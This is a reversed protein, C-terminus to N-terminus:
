RHIHAIFDDFERRSDGGEGVSRKVAAGLDAARKRIEKGERSDMLMRVSKEIALSEVLEDRCAWDMVVVGIKLVQTVLLANLPQDSHMPWTALPVGMTISEMCSNWGCHSMFGGTSAHALIEVQPAWDRLIKGQGSSEIRDEYGEPLECVRVDGMFIDGKDADRLVWIFKQRSSELGIALAHIQEDTLCTTTGFSVLIVSDPAQNDLWELCKDKHQKNATNCIQVANLPGIAWQRANVKALVDLFPAEIARCTNFIAGSSYKQHEMQRETFERVEPTSTTGDAPIQKLIEDDIEMPTGVLAWVYSSILFTSVPQFCYAEGNPLSAVDQIVSGMLFDHIVVVRRSTASLAYLLRAVPERLLLAADFSPQLHSPFKIAAHPNPLPSEFCPTAFEHFRIMTNSISLPDWGHVRSKAQRTHTITSVYHVPIRCSSIHRSLHLLQNLHGQAPFPVMVVIVEHSKTAEDHSAM